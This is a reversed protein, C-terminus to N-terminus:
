QINTLKSPAERIDAGALALQLVLQPLERLWPPSKLELDAHQFTILPINQAKCFNALIPMLEANKHRSASLIWGTQSRPVPPRWDFPKQLSLLKLTCAWCGQLATRSATGATWSACTSGCCTAEVESNHLFVRVMLFLVRHGSTLSRLGERALHHHRAPADRACANSPKRM